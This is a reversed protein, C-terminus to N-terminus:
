REVVESVPAAIRGGFRSFRLKGIRAAFKSLESARSLFRDYNQISALWDEGGEKFRLSHAAHDTLSERYEERTPITEAGTYPPDANVSVRVYAISVQVDATLKPVIGFQGLGFPFWRKVTDGTEALWGRRTMDMEYVNTKRIVGPGEMRLLVLGGNPITFFRTSAALTMLATDKIEPEGSILTLENMAEVVDPRVESALNWFLSNAPDEELRRLVETAIDAVTSM